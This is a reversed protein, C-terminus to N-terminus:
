VFCCALWGVLWGFNVFVHVHGIRVQIELRFTTAIDGAHCVYCDVVNGCPCPTSGFAIFRVVM